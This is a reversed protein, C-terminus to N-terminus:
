ECYGRAVGSAVAVSEGDRVRWDVLVSGVRLVRGVAAPVATDRPPVDWLAGVDRDERQHALVPALRALRQTGAETECPAAALALPRPRPTRPRPSSRRRHHVDDRAPLHKARPPLVPPRRAM